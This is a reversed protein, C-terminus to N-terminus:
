KRKNTKIIIKSDNNKKISFILKKDLRNDIMIKVLYTELDDPYELVQFDAFFNEFDWAEEFLEANM